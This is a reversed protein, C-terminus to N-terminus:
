RGARECDQINGECCLQRIFVSMVPMHFTKRVRTSISLMLHGVSVHYFVISADSSFLFISRGLSNPLTYNGGGVNRNKGGQLKGAAGKGGGGGGRGHRGPFTVPRPNVVQGAVVGDAGGVAEAQAVVVAAARAAM